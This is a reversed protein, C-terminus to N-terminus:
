GRQHPHRGPLQLRRGLLEHQLAERVLAYAGQRGESLITSYEEVMSGVTKELMGALDAYAMTLAKKRATTESDSRGM